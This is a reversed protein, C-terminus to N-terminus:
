KQDSREKWRSAKPETEKKKGLKKLHINNVQRNVQGRKSMPTIVYNYNESKNTELDKRSERTFTKEKHLFTIQLTWVNLKRFKNNIDLKM